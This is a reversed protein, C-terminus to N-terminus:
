PPLSSIVAVFQKRQENTLGYKILMVNESLSDLMSFYDLVQEYHTYRTGLSYGLYQDPSIAQARIIAPLYITVIFLFCFKLKM